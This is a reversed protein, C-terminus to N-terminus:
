KNTEANKMDKLLTAAVGKATNTTRDAM